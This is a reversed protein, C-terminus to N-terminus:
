FQVGLIDPSLSRSVNLFLLNRTEITGEAGFDHMGVLSERTTGDLGVFDVSGDNYSFIHEMTLITLLHPAFMIGADRQSLGVTTGVCVFQVIRDLARSNSLM